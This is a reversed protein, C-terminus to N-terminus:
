WSEDCGSLDVTGRRVRRRMQRSGDEIQKQVYTHQSSAIPFNGYRDLVQFILHHLPLM